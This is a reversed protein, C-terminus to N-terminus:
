NRSKVVEIENEIYNRNKTLGMDLMSFVSMTKQDQRVMVSSQSQYVPKMILTFYLTLFFIVSFIISFAKIHKKLIYYVEKISYEQESAINQDSLNNIM